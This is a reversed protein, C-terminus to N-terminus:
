IPLCNTKSNNLENNEIDVNRCLVNPISKGLYVAQKIEWQIGNQKLMSKIMKPSYDVQFNKKLIHRVYSVPVRNIYQTQEYCNYDMFQNYMDTTDKFCGKSDVCYKKNLIENIYDIATNNVTKKFKRQYELFAYNFEQVLVM